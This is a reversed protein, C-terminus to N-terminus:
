RVLYPVDRRITPGIPAGTRSIDTEEIFEAYIEDKKSFKGAQGRDYSPQVLFIDAWAEVPVNPSNGKVDHYNCNIIAITMRRRDFPDMATPYGSTGQVAGCVPNNRTTLQNGSAGAPTDALRAAVKEEWKYVDYRSVQAVSPSNVLVLDAAASLNAFWENPLWGYHTWFYSDRDWM